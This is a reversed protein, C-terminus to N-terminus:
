GCCLRISLHSCSCSSKPTMVFKTGTQHRQNSRFKSGDFTRPKFDPETQYRHYVVYAQIAANSCLWVCGRYGSM